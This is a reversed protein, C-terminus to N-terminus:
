VWGEPLLNTGGLEKARKIIWRKVKEPDSARGFALIARALDRKNRIPYSGDPLALGKKALQRREEATFDM